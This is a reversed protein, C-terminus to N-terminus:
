HTEQQHLCCLGGYTTIRVPPAAISVQGHAPLPANGLYRHSSLQPSAQVPHPGIAVLVRRGELETRVRSLMVRAIWQGAHSRSCCGASTHALSCHLASMLFIFLENCPRREKVVQSMMCNRLQRLSLRAILRNHADRPMNRRSHEPKIRM